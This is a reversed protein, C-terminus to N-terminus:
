KGLHCRSWPENVFKPDIMKLVNNAACHGRFLAEEFAPTGLNNNAFVVREFPMRMLPVKDKFHHPAPIHVSYPWRNTIDDICELTQNKTKVVPELNAFLKILAGRAITTAQEETLGKVYGPPLPHYITIIENQLNPDSPITSYNRYNEGLAKVQDDVWFANIFDTFDEVKSGANLFWTDYGERYPHGVVKVSDVDYDAYALSKMAAAQKPSKKELDVIIQPAFKVPGAYVSYSAQVVHIEKGSVYSVEVHDSFNEIKIVPTNTKATALSPEAKLMDIMNVAAQATGRPTTFRTEIESIYFNAFAVASIQDGTTGLASRCYLNLFDVVNTMPDQAPLLGKTVDGNFRKRIDQAEKSNYVYAGKKNKSNLRSPMSRIWQTVSIDDLKLSGGEKVFDEIPQDPILNEANARQLIFKFVAFSAPLQALTEPDWVGEYLKGNWFYNDIHEPIPDKKEYDGLGIAQLIHLEEKFPSTWYAAGRDYFVSRSLDVSAALGGLYNEKELVLVKKNQNTLFVAASLGSLGAGAIVVDVKDQDQIVPYNLYNPNKEFSAEDAGSV